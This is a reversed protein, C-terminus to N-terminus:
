SFNFLVSEDLNVSGSGDYRKTSEEEVLSTPLQSIDFNPDNLHEMVFEVDRKTDPINRMHVDDHAQKTVSYPGAEEM